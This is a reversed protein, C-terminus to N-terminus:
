EEVLSVDDVALAVRITYIKTLVEEGGSSSVSTSSSITLNQPRNAATTSIWKDSFAECFNYVVERVDGTTPDSKTQDLSNLAAFPITLETSSVSIGSFWGSPAPDFVM